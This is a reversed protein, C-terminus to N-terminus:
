EIKDMLLWSVDEEKEARIAGQIKITATYFYKNKM